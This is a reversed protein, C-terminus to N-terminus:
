EDKGYRKTVSKLISEDISLGILEATRENVATSVSAPYQLSLGTVDRGKMACKVLDATQNGLSEAETYQGALAGAKVLNESFSFLPLKQRIAWVLLARVNASNYVSADPLMLVSDIESNALEKLSDGFNEKDARVGVFEVKRDQGAKRMAEFTRATRSSYLVGVRKTSSHLHVIWDVQAKPDVDTTVGGMRKSDASWFGQDLVNPVMCFVIPIDKVSAALLNMAQVGGGVILKPHASRIPSLVADADAKGEGIPLESVVCRLGGKEVESKLKEVAIRYSGQAGTLVGIVRGDSKEASAQLPCFVLYLIM